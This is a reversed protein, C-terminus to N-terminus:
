SCSSPTSLWPNLSQLDSQSDPSLCTNPVFTSPQPSSLLRLSPSGPRLPDPKPQPKPVTYPVLDSIVTALGFSVAVPALVLALMLWIFVSLCPMIPPSMTLVSSTDSTSNGTTSPLNRPSLLPCRVPPAEPYVQSRLVKITSSIVLHQTLFSLLICSPTAPSIYRDVSLVGHCRGDRLRLWLFYPFSMATVGLARIPFYAFAGLYCCSIFICPQRRACPGIRLVFRYLLSSLISSM